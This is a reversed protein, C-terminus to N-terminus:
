PIRPRENIIITRFDPIDSLRFARVYYDFTNFNSSLSQISFDPPHLFTVNICEYCDQYHEIKLLTFVQM